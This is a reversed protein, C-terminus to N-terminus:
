RIMAIHRDQRPHHHYHHHPIIHHHHPRQDLAVVAAAAAVTATATAVRRRSAATTTRTSVPHPRSFTTLSTRAPPSSNSRWRPSTSSPVCVSKACRRALSLSKATRRFYFFICKCESFNINQVDEIPFSSVIIRM